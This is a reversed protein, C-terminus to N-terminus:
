LLTEATRRITKSDDIVMVRLGELSGAPKDEATMLIKGQRSPATVLTAAFAVYIGISPRVTLCAVSIKGCGPVHRVGKGCAGAALMRGNGGGGTSAAAMGSSTTTTISGIPDILTAFSEVKAM